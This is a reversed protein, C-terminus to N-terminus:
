RAIITGTGTAREHLGRGDIDSALAPVVLALLVQRWLANFFTVHDGGDVRAVRLGFVLQGPTFSFAVVFAVGMVAWLAYAWTPATSMPNGGSLSVILVAIGEAILWDILLAGLRRGQGALSGVGQAPLGLRMGRYEEVEPTTADHTSSTARAM